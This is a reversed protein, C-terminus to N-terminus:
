IMAHVIGHFIRDKMQQEAPLEDFPVICPHIKAEPDKEAGYVWGDHLKDAVWSEHQASVGAELHSLAFKVGEMASDKQWDPADDWLPQSKDSLCECWARNAEHCVRAIKEIQNNQSM